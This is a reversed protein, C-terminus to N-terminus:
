KLELMLVHASDLAHVDTYDEEPISLGNVAALAEPAVHYQKSITWLSEGKPYILCVPHM